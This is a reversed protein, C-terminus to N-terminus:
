KILTIDLKEGSFFTLGSFGKTTETNKALIIQEEKLVRSTGNTGIASIRLTATKEESSSNVIRINVDCPGSNPQAYYTADGLKFWVNAISIDYLECDAEPTFYVSNSLTVANGDTDMLGTSTITYPSLSVYKAIDKSLYLRVERQNSLYVADCVAPVAKGATTM